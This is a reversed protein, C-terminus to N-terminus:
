CALDTDTTRVGSLVLMLVANALLLLGALWRAQEGLRRRLLTGGWVVAVLMPVTGLGFALMAGAGAAASGAGAAAALAGYVLGCPLLGLALGMVYLARPARTGPLAAALPAAARALAGALVPQASFAVGFAQSAMLLAALALLVSPLWAFIASTSTLAAAGAAVGGLIVYTTLRGFHYPVLAAGQLRRWEGYRRAEGAGAAAMGLVFPGCMGACHTLSGALGALFLALPLGFSGGILPAIGDHCAAALNFLADM